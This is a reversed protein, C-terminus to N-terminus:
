RGLSVTGRKLPQPAAPARLHGRGPRYVRSTPFVSASTSRRASTRSPRPRGRAIMPLDFMVAQFLTKDPIYDMAYRRRRKSGRSVQDSM